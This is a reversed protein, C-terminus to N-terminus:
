KPVVHRVQLEKEPSFLHYSKETFSANRTLGFKM